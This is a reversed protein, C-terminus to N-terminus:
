GGARVPRRMLREIAAATREAAGRGAQVVERARMGAAARSEDAELWARWQEALHDAAGRGRPLAVLARAAELQAADRSAHWRPGVVVPLGAAAPELVSHLGSRGFGGGVYAFAGAAYLDALVGVRDVLVLPSPEPKEELSSLPVPDGFGLAAAQTAIGRARAPSPEHPAVALRADARTRRVQRFAELLVREDAPWTSGAIALPGGPALLQAWPTATAHDARAAASDYRTDGLVEITDRAVGLEILRPVQDRDVAAVAGLQAYATRALRRALPSLRSSRPSVVASILAIPICRDAAALTLTPWVDVHAFVLISPRLVELAATQAQLTDFPLYDHGDVDLRTAFREASPSFHTYFLQWDPHLRRLVELVPKAHLGEGVSTAHVWVLPRAPDRHDRAWRTLREVLGRRAAVARGVKPLLPAVLPLGLLAMRVGVRYPAPARPM